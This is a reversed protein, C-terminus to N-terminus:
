KNEVTKIFSTIANFYDEQDDFSIFIAETLVYILQATLYDIPKSVKIEAPNMSDYKGGLVLTPM